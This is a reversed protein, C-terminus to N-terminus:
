HYFSLLILILDICFLIHYDQEYDEDSQKQMCRTCKMSQMAGPYRWRLEFDRPNRIDILEISEGNAVLYHYPDRGLRCLHSIVKNHTSLQISHKGRFDSCILGLPHSSYYVLPHNSPQTSIPPPNAVKGVPYSISHIEKNAEIEYLSCAKLSSTVYEDGYLSSTIDDVM